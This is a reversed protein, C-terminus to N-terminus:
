AIGADQSSQVIATIPHSPLSFNTSNLPRTAADILVGFRFTLLPGILGMAEFGLVGHHMAFVM